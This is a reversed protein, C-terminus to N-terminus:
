FKMVTRRALLALTMLLNGGGRQNGASAMTSLLGRCMLLVVISLLAGATGTTIGSLVKAVELGLVLLTQGFLVGTATRLYWQAFRETDETAWCIGFLSGAVMLVDLFGLRFLLSLLLLLSVIAFVIVLVPAAIVQGPEPTQLELHPKILSGCLDPAAIQASLANNLGVGWEWWTLNGISLAMAALVRGFGLQRGGLAHGLGQAILALVLLNNAAVAIKVALGRLEAQKYTWDPPTTRWFDPLSCMQNAWEVPVPQAVNVIFAQDALIAADRVEAKDMPPASVTIENRVTTQISPPQPPTVIASGPAAQALIVFALVVGTLMPRFVLVM